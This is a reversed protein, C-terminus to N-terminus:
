FLLPSVATVQCKQELGLCSGPTTCFHKSKLRIGSETTQDRTESPTPPPLDKYAREGGDRDGFLSEFAHRHADDEEQIYHTHITNADKWGGQLQLSKM